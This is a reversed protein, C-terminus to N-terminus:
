KVKVPMKLGDTAAGAASERTPLVSTGRSLDRTAAHGLPKNQQTMSLMIENYIQQAGQTRPTVVGYVQLFVPLAVPTNVWDGNPDGAVLAGAPSPAGVQPVQIAHVPTDKLILKRLLWVHNATYWAIRESELDNKSLHNVSMTCSVMDTYKEMPSLMSSSQRTDLTLGAFALPGRVTTIAPRHGVVAGNVPTEDTIVIETDEIDAHWKYNGKDAYGFLGQLFALIARRLMITPTEAWSVVAKGSSPPIHTGPSM